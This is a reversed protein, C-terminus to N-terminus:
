LRPLWMMMSAAFIGTATMLTLVVLASAMAVRGRPGARDRAHFYLELVALPVLYQSYAIITLAPGRFTHPDFGVPGRNVLIWFMLGIRFFWVGGVVLFLRLAWRRHLDSNRALAYRLAMAGCGIILLANISTSLHQWVDGGTNRTWVMYLGGVSLLLASFLYVRGNWRHFRPWLRRVAPTLQLAGGFLIVVVFTLHLALILNHMTHGSIYGAPMVKNWTEFEGQVAARGYFVAVYAAFVWQGFVAVVFWLTAAANLAAAAGASSISGGRGASEPRTGALPDCLHHLVASRFAARSQITM